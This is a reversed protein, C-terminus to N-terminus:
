EKQYTITNIQPSGDADQQTTEYVNFYIRGKRDKKVEYEAYWCGQDYLTIRSNHMSYKVTFNKSPTLLNYGYWTCLTDKSIEIRDQASLSLKKQWNGNLESPSVYASRM